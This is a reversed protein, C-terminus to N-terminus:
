PAKREKVPEKPGTRWVRTDRYVPETASYNSVYRADHGRGRHSRGRHKSWTDAQAARPDHDPLDFDAAAAPLATLALAALALSTTKVVAPM